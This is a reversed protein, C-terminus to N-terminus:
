NEEGPRYSRVANARVQELSTWAPKFEGRGYLEAQDTYHPSAPDNSQGAGNVTRARVESGFEVMSVYSNGTVGYWRKLGEMPLAIYTQIMGLLGPGGLVPSSPRDDSFRGDVLHQLRNLEGYPVRWTGRDRELLSVAKELGTIFNWEDWPLPEADAASPLPIPPDELTALWSWVRSMKLVMYLTMAVSEDRSVHDWAELTEVMPELRLARVPDAARLRQWEAILAPVDREAEYARRSMAADAWGDFTFRDGRSLIRRSARARANDGHEDILVSPSGFPSRAMIEPFRSPDPNEDEATVRFPSHNTNMLWGSRPNLVQPLEDLSHYGRWETRPDSGDVPEAWDFGPDRRPVAGNGVFWINGERDAYGLNLWIYQLRSVASRFEEFSEARAMAHLQQIIGGEEWRAIRLALPAGDRVAVIPGHHTKRFTVGRSQLGSDTRVRVTDTWEEATRYGDGYRYALPDAPHDFTERWLDSVDPENNTWAWGHRPTHGFIPLPRGLRYGGYVNLGEDSVLHGEGYANPGSHPNIFLMASGTASKSPAIMWVNSGAGQERRGAADGVESIKLHGHAIPAWLSEARGVAFMQWPEFREIVMPTVEPHRALFHNLGAAWAEAMARFSPSAGAYETRSLRETELARVYLDSALAGEGEIEALRGILEAVNRELEAFGDEAQAYVFGFVAAADTEGHVHPIGYADRYIVVQDALPELSDPPPAELPASTHVCAAAPLLLSAALIKPFQLMM